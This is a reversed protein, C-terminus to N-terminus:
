APVCVYMMMHAGRARAWAPAGACARSCMQKLRWHGFDHNHLWQGVATDRTLGSYLAYPFHEVVGFGATALHRDFEDSSYYYQYFSVDSAMTEVPAARALVRERFLNVYPVSILAVGKDDLVRRAERLGAVPGDPDHEFVGISIYGGYHGDPVDLEYVDGVRVNLKPALSKIAAITSAVYDLGEVPYGRAALAMVLQGTGCGAELTPRDRPLHRTFVSAFEDLKGTRYATLWSEFDRRAWREEWHRSHEGIRRFQALRDRFRCFVVSEDVSTLIESNTTQTHVRGTM